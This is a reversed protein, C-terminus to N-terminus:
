LLNIDHRSVDAKLYEELKNKKEVHHRKYLHVSLDDNDEEKEETIPQSDTEAQSPGYSDNYTAIILKHAVEIWRRDWNHEKYCALKM